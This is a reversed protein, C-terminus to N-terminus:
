EEISGYFEIGKKLEAESLRSVQAAEESSVVRMGPIDDIIVVTDPGILHKNEEAAEESDVILVAAYENVKHKKELNRIRDRMGV